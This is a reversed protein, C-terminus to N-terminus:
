VLRLKNLIPLVKNWLRRASGPMSEFDQATVAKTKLLLVPYIAGTVASAVVTQIFANWLVGEFPQLYRYMLWAVAAGIVTQLFVTSIFPLMRDGLV